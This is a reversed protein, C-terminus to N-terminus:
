RNRIIPGMGVMPRTNRVMQALRAAETSSPSENGRIKFFWIVRAFPNARQRNGYPRNGVLNTMTHTTDM